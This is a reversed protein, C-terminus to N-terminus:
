AAGKGGSSGPRKSTRLEAMHSDALAAHFHRLRSSLNVVLARAPLRDHPGMGMWQEMHDHLKAKLCWNVNTVADSWGDTMLRVGGMHMIVDNPGPDREAASEARRFIPRLKSEWREEVLALVTAPGVGFEFLECAFILRHFQDAGYRLAAGRGPMNEAGFLGQKQLNGIRGRFAAVAKEPIGYAEVLAAEVPGYSTEFAM